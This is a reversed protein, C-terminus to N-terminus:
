RPFEKKVQKKLEYRLSYDWNNENLLEVFRQAQKLTKVSGYYKNNRWIKFDQTSHSYSYWKPQHKQRKQRKFPRPEIKGQQILKTRLKYFDNHSLNLKRRIKRVPIDYNNYLQIFETECSM